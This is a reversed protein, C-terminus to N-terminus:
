FSIFLAVHAVCSGRRVQGEGELVSGSAVQAGCRMPPLLTAATASEQKISILSATKEKTKRQQLAEPLKYSPTSGLHPCCVHHKIPHVKLCHLPLKCGLM